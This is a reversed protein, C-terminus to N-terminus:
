QGKLISPLEAARSGASPGAAPESTFWPGRRPLSDGHGVDDEGGEVGFVGVGREAKSIEHRIEAVEAVAGRDELEVDALPRDIDEFRDEGL